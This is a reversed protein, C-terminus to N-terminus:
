INDTNKIPEDEAEYCFLKRKKRSRVGMTVSMNQNWISNVQLIVLYGQIKIDNAM